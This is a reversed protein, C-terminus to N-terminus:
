PSVGPADIDQYETKTPGMVPVSPKTNSTTATEIDGKGFFRDILEVFQQQDDISSEHMKFLGWDHNGPIVIKRARTAALQQALIKESRERDDDTFGESYINDGLYLVTTNDADSSWQGLKQLTPGETSHIPGKIRHPNTCAAALLLVPSGRLSRQENSKMSM